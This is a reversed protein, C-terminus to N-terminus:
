CKYQQPRDEKKGERYSPSMEQCAYSELSHPGAGLHVWGGPWHTCPARHGPISCGSCSVSWQGGNLASTLFPPAM